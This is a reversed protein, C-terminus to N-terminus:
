NRSWNLVSRAGQAWAGARNAISPTQTKAKAHARAITRAVEVSKYVIVGRQKGNRHVRLHVSVALLLAHDHM